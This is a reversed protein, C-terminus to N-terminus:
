RIILKRIASTQEDTIRIFYAGKAMGDLGITNHSGDIVVKKVERGNLDVITVTTQGEIGSFTVSTTAPNPYLTVDMGNVNDIGDVRQFIAVYTADETVTINRSATTVDDNWKAFRYGPNATATLTVSTGVEYTGGGTVTGMTTDNAIATITYTQAPTAVEFNATYTIDATVVVTRTAETVGDNWNVFRYGSNATATLTATSGNEYSGGGTVTGMAPTNAVVTVTYYVPTTGNTIVKVNDIHLDNDAGSLTSEGYFAIRVQQGAFDSLSLTDTTAVPSISAYANGTSDWVAIPTVANDTIAFVIFRDDADAGLSSDSTNYKTLAYDFVVAMSADVDFTPTVLWHKVATGYINLKVHKSGGMATSTLTWGSSVPTFETSDSTYLGSLRDWCQLDNMGTIADFNQEWPLNALGIVGCATTVSITAAFSTDGDSCLARVTFTYSTAPTLGSADYTNTNVTQWAGDNVSVLWQSASGNDNWTLVVATSSVSSVSLATPAPCSLASVSVNDIAAPPNAGDSYDNRWCFVLRYLGDNDVSFTGNASNWTSDLNLKGGVVDQWGAPTAETINSSVPYSGATFSASAPAVWVRLFDYTSEGMARWDFSVQYQGSVLEIDRVAYSVASSNHNYTNSAGNDGSIYLSNSGGHNTASGIHWGNVSNFLEWAVDDGSEFGTTYPLTTIPINLTRFSTTLDTTLTSDTCIAVVSVQYATLIDLDTLTVVTDTVIINVTDGGGILTVGYNNVATSDIIHLTATTAAVNDVYIGEPRQCTPAIGVTVDDIWWWYNASSTQKQAIAFRAGAPATPITVEVYNMATHGSAPITDVAVFATDGVVYGVLLSGSNNASEAVCWFSLMMNAIPEDFIPLIAVHPAVNAYGSFRFSQTGSYAYSPASVVGVKSEDSGMYSWCPAVGTVTTPYSDFNERWPLDVTAVSTCTTRFSATLPHTLTADSCIAVVRITYATNSSLGTLSVTASTFDSSDVVNDNVLLYYRYNNTGATDNVTLTASFEAIDSVVISVPRNCAPRIGVTLEDIWWWYNASTNQRQAIAMRAGDPAGVFPVEIYDMNTYDACGFTDITVFNNTNDVYGVMLTGPQTANESKAWFSLMLNSIPEEFVPLIAIHPTTANGSFRFSKTGEHPNAAVVAVGLASPGRYDWCPIIGAATPYSEFGESWPLDTHAIIGCETRVDVDTFLTDPGCLSGVAIEYVTNSALGSLTYTTASTASTYTWTTDGEPRYGITWSSESGNAVWSLEVSNETVNGVVVNSAMCRDMNCNGVFRTNPITSSIGTATTLSAINIPSNDEYWYVSSGNAATSSRWSFSAWSGTKNVVAVVLNDSGRPVFVSDFTITSWGTQSVNMPFDSAVKTLQSVPVFSTTTFSTLETYGMYVDVTRTTHNSPVSGVEYSIGVISDIASVLSPDYLTQSYGYNYLGYFPVNSNTTNGVVEGCASTMFSVTVPQPAQHAGCTTVLSAVYATAPQLGTFLVNTGTVTQPAPVAVTSDDCTLTVTVETAPDGVASPTWSIGASTFGVNGVTVDLVSYCFQQTTTSVSATLSTDDAGCVSALRFTYHTNDTLTDITVVTDNVLHWESDNVSIVWSTESGGRNWRLTASTTGTNTVTFATPMDCTLLDLTVNDVGAAPASGQSNDNHWLFVVYYSGANSVTFQLGATMWDAHNTLKPTLQTWDTTSITAATFDTSAPALFVQMYDYITSSGEGVCRWEFGLSYLGSDLTFNRAAFSECAVAVNYDNTVGGDNSIYLGYDGSNKAATDICWANVGNRMMWGLDDTLEFGTHYPLSTVPQALTTFILENTDSNGSTCNTHIYAQYRTGSTLGTIAITDVTTTLTTGTGPVFGVPGYEITYDTVNVFVNSVQWELVVSTLGAERIAFNNPRPCYDEDGSIYDFKLKPLFNRQTATVNAASSANYGSLSAGTRSAGYFNSTLWAGTSNSYFEILLNGGSYLYPQFLSLVMQNGSVTLTGAYYEDESGTTDFATNSFSSMAVEKIRVSMTSSWSKTADSSFFTLSNIMSGSPMDTLMTAPYIMQARIYSDMWLGYIPVYSNTSAGDAVTLTMQARGAMPIALAAMLLVPTLFRIIRKM